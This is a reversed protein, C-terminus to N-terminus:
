LLVARLVNATMRNWEITFKEPSSIAKDSRASVIEMMSQNTAAM